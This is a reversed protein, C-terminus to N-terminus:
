EFRTYDGKVVNQKQEERARIWEYQFYRLTGPIIVGVYDNVSTELTTQEDESTGLPTEVSYDSDSLESEEDTLEGLM